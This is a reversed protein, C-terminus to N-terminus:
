VRMTEARKPPSAVRQTVQKKKKRFGIAALESKQREAEEQEQRRKQEEEQKRRQKEGPTRNYSEEMLRRLSKVDIGKEYQRSLGYYTFLQKERAMFMQGYASTKWAKNRLQENRQQGIKLAKMGADSFLIRNNGLREQEEGGYMELDQMFQRFRKTEIKMDTHLSSLGDLTRLKRQFLTMNELHMFEKAWDKFPDAESPESSIGINEAKKKKRGKKPSKIGFSWPLSRYFVDGPPARKVWDGHSVSDTNRRVAVAEVTPEQPSLASQLAPMTVSRHPFGSLPKPRQRGKLFKSPLEPLWQVTPTSPTAPAPAVEAHEAEGTSTSLAKAHEDRRSQHDVAEQSVTETEVTETAPCSAESVEEWRKMACRQANQADLAVAHGNPLLQSALELAESYLQHIQQMESFSPPLEEQEGELAEIEDGEVDDESPLGGSPFGVMSTATAITVQSTTHSASRLSWLLQSHQSQMEEKSLLFEMEMAICLRSQIGCCIARELWCPPNVIHSRLAPHPKRMDGSSEAEAMDWAAGTLTAWVDDLSEKARIAEQLAPGHRGIRSLACCLQVQVCSAAVTVVLPTENPPAATRHALALNYTRRLLTIAGRYDRSKIKGDAVEAQRDVVALMAEDRDKATQLANPGMPRKPDFADPRINYSALTPKSAIDLAM